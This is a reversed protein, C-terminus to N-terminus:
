ASRRRRLPALLGLLALLLGNAGPGRADCGCGGDGGDQGGAEGSSDEGGTTTTSAGPEGSTPADGSTPVGESDSTASNSDSNSGSMPDSDADASTETAGTESTGADPVCMGIEDAESNCVEGDPCGNGSAHCGDVCESADCVKGSDPGGCDADESCTCADDVEDNCDNDVGDCVEPGSPVCTCTHTDPDCTPTLADCQADELCGVCVNPDQATDCVGLGPRGCQADAECADVLIDTPPAGQEDANGDTPTDAPPAGKAGGATIVAQNSLTGVADADITVRFTVDSADDIALGGGDSADAGTGLRVTVVRTGADYEGQDDGAADTKPGVNAGASVALSGPVYTVGPPLADTLVVDVAADDGTNVAHIKYELEDGALVAGGNVDVVTKTSATFEPRYDAISTVFGALVFGDGLTSAKIAAETQGSMLKATVDIVDIDLGSYSGPAGTLQPLDGAVSVAAGLNSRTGNLFNNPPNLANGLAAGGNFFLQEGVLQVDGEYAVVGLKGDIGGNPVLFGALQLDVSKNLDVLDGSDFVALNRLPESDRQYLVAIWWNAFAGQSDLNTLTQAEIGGVRYAGTGHTQLLDTVETTCQYGAFSGMGNVCDDGADLDVSFAGPREFRVKPGLAPLDLSAGWFLFAHTINADPPLELVATSRADAKTIGTNATVQGDGPADSRWFVDIATDTINNGCAGVTGVVPAPVDAACNHGLTNGFLRFDGRQSVQVRLKPAAQVQNTVLWSAAALAGLGIKTSHM